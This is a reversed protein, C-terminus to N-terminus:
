KMYYKIAYILLRKIPAIYYEILANNTVWERLGIAKKITSYYKVSMAIYFTTRKIEALRIAESKLIKTQNSYFM